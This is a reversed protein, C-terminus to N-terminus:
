GGRKLMGVLKKAIVTSSLHKDVWARGAAGRAQWQDLAEFIGARLANPSSQPVMIVPARECYGGGLWFPIAGADSVVVSCGTAMAEVAAYPMAQECWQNTDQSYCVVVKVMSLPWPLKEWETWRTIRVTPWAAQLHHVGKEPVPRGFFGVDERREVGPRAAFHDVDVGVQPLITIDRGPRRHLYCARGNGAIVLGVGDLRAGALDANIQRQGLSGEPGRIDLNEWVFLVSRARLGDAIHTARETIACAVEQQVYVVEPEWQKLVSELTPMSYSYMDPAGLVPLPAIEFTSHKSEGAKEGMYNVKVAQPRLLGWQEPACLLVDVGERAVHRFFAQQRVHALSHGIVALRM